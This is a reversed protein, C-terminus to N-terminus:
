ATYQINGTQTGNNQKGYKQCIYTLIIVSEIGTGEFLKILIKDIGLSKSTELADLATKVETELIVAEEEFIDTMKKDRKYLNETSEKSKEKIEGLYYEVKNTM